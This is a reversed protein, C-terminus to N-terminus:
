AVKSFIKKKKKVNWICACSLVFRWFTYFNCEYLDKCIAFLLDKNPTIISGLRIGQTLIKM